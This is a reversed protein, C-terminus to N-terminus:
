HQQFFRARLRHALTALDEALASHTVNGEPSNGHRISRECTVASSLMVLFGFTALLLSSRFSLVVIAFGVLFLAISARLSRFASSSPARDRVRLVRDHQFLSKEMEHLIRQEEESLPM